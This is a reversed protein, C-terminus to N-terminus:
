EENYSGEMNKGKLLDKGEEIIGKKRKMQEKEDIKDRKDRLATNLMEAGKIATEWKDNRIDTEPLVGKEKATYLPETVTKPMEGGQMMREIVRELSEGEKLEVGQMSKVRKPKIVYM